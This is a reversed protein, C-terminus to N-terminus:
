IIELKEAWNRLRRPMKHLHKWIFYIALTAGITDFIIDRITPERGPTFSQHFEDTAGYIFSLFVAWYGSSKKDIGSNLLGRYIFLAFIGYEVVHVIKKVVFDFWYNSSVKGTPNSSFTFILLAWLIPPLWYTLIKGINKM